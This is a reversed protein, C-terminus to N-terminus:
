GPLQGDILLHRDTLQRVTLFDVLGVSQLQQRVEESRYAACLSHYFDHRLVDAEGDAYLAVLETVTKLDDPRLLDMVFVATGPRGYRQIYRWLDGPRALHHLLSNAVILDVPEITLACQPLYGQVLEVREALSEEAVRQCALELMATAAELAIIHANPLAHALRVTIDAPGCGLDLVTRPQLGRTQLFALCQEVYLSHPQDFDAAAYAVAQARDVMLEPEPIRRM